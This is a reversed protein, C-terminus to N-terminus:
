FTVFNKEAQRGQGALSKHKINFHSEDEMAHFLQHSSADFRSFDVITYNGACKWTSEFYM